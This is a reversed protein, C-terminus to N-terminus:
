GAKGVENDDFAFCITSTKANYESLVRPFYSLEQFTGGLAGRALIRTSLVLRFQALSGSPGGRCTAGKLM